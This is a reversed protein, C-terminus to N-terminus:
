PMGRTYKADAPINDRNALHDRMYGFQGDAGASWLEFEREMGPRCYYRIDSHMPQNADPFYKQHLPTPRGDAAMASGVTLRGSYLLLCRSDAMLQPGPGEDPQFGQDGLGYNRVDWPHINAGVVRPIGTKMGRINRSVYIIPNGHVDILMDGRRFRMEIEGRLYDEAWGPRHTSQRNGMPIIPSVSKDAKLRGKNSIVPGLMDIAGIAVAQRARAQAMRNSQWAVRIQYQPKDGIRGLTPIEPHVTDDLVVDGVTIVAGHPQTASETSKRYWTDLVCQYSYAAAASNMDQRVKSLDPDAITTGLTYSLSNIFDTASFRGDADATPYTLQYPYGGHDQRFARIAIETKGLIAQNATKHTSRQVMQLLPMAMGALLSMMTMVMLLEILTFGTAAKM